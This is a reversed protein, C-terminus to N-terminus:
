PRVPLTGSPGPSTAPRGAPTLKKVVDAGVTLTIREDAVSTIVAAPSATEAGFLRGKRVHVRTIRRSAPDLDVGEVDGLHEGANDYVPTGRAIVPEGVAEPADADPIYAPVGSVSPSTSVFPLVSETWSDGAVLFFSRLDFGAPMPWQDPMPRLAHSDYLHVGAVESASLALRVEDGFTAVKNLPIVVERRDLVGRQLVLAVVERTEPHLVLRSVTGVTKGNRDVVHTGFPVFV